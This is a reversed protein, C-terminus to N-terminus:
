EAHYLWAIFEGFTITFNVQAFQVHQIQFISNVILMLRRPLYLAHVSRLGQSADVSAAGTSRQRRAHRQAVLLELESLMVGVKM